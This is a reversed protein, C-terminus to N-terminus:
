QVAPSAGEKEAALLALEAASLGQVGRAVVAARVDYRTRLAKDEFFLAIILTILGLVGVLSWTMWIGSSTTVPVGYFLLSAANM